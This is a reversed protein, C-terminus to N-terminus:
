KAAPVRLRDEALQRLQQKFAADTTTDRAIADLTRRAWEQAADHDGAAAHAESLSDLANLSLPHAEVNLTFLAIAEAHRGAALHEYGAANIAAEPALPTSRDARWRALLRPGGGPEALGARLGASPGPAGAARDAAPEKLLRQALWDAIAPELDAHVPFMDTGHGGREYEVLKTAPHSSFGVLWRLVGVANGDDHAASAFIPLGPNAALFAQGTANTGGALLVLAGVQPHRSALQVSNDVGCSGGGAAIRTRDVGPQALLHALAVDFDAAWKAREARRTADDQDRFPLGGSEGYGRYDLTLVHMGRAALMGALEDWAQRRSNCMHLLLVGPGPAAAPFYSAKLLVGDPAKLDVPRPAAHLPVALMLVTASALVPAKM